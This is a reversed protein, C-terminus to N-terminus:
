PQAALFELVKATLANRESELEASGAAAASPELMARWLEDPVPIQRAYYRIEVAFAARGAPLAMRVVESYGWVAGLKYTYCTPAAFRAALQRATKNTDAEVWAVFERHANAQQRPVFSGPPTVGLASASLEVSSTLPELVQPDSAAYQRFMAERGVAIGLACAGARALSRQQPDTAAVADPESVCSTSESLSSTLLSGFLEQYDLALDMGRMAVVDFTVFSGAVGWVIAVFAAGRKLRGAFGAQAIV